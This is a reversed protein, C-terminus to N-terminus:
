RGFRAPHTRTHVAKLRAISVHTYIQTTSLLAHGLMEQLDRIDAGGAHMLTAMTHRFIHCSGSKGLGAGLVYGHLRETLRTPRMRAGRAGLFIAGPDHDRLLQPRTRDLYRHTWHIARDGIPVLRDKRGKGERIFLVGREADLDPLDLGILEMRRIGTSYLVEMIARDRLGLPTAPDPRALVREAESASLVARPLRRPLRPRELGVSPDATLRRTRVAWACFMRVATVLNAQTSWSPERTDGSVGRALAVRFRELGEATVDETRTVGEAALVAALRALQAQRTRITSRAFGNAVLSELHRVIDGAIDCAIDCAIDSASAHSHAAREDPTHNADEPPRASPAVPSVVRRVPLVGQLLAGVSVVAPAHVRAFTRVDFGRPLPVRVAAIGTAALAASLRTAALNGEATAAFAVQARPVDGRRLLAVLADMATQESPRLLALVRHQGLRWLILADIVDDCLVLDGSEAVAAVNWIGLRAGPLARTPRLAHGPAALRRGYCQRVRGDTDMLPVVICGAFHEHGSARVLGELRLADRLSTGTRAVAAALAPVARGLTRDSVGLRFRTLLAHEDLGLRALFELAPASRPLAAQYFDTVRDLTDDAEEADTAATERGDSRDSAGESTSM